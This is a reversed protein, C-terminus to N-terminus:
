KRKTFEGCNKPSRQCNETCRSATVSGPPWTKSPGHRVTGQSARGDVARGRAPVALEEEDTPALAMQPCGQVTQHPRGRGGHKKSSGASSRSRKGSRPWRRRKPPIGSSCTTKHGSRRSPASACTHPSESCRRAGTFARVRSGPSAHESVRRSTAGWGGRGCEAPEMVFDCTAGGRVLCRGVARMVRVEQWRWVGWGHHGFYRLTCRTRSCRRQYTVNPSPM